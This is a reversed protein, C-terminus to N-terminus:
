LGISLGCGRLRAGSLAASKKRERRIELSAAPAFRLGLHLESLEGEGRGVPLPGSHSKGSTWSRAKFGQVLGCSNGLSEFRGSILGRWGTFAKFGNAPERPAAVELTCARMPARFRRGRALTKAQALGRASKLGSPRSWGFRWLVPATWFRATRRLDMSLRTRRSQVRMPAM